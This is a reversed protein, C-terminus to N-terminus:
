EHPYRDRKARRRSTELVKELPKGRGTDSDHKFHEYLCHRHFFGTCEGCRYVYSFPVLKGCGGFFLEGSDDDHRNTSGCQFLPEADM